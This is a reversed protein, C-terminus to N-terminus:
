WQDHLCLTQVLRVTETGGVVCFPLLRDFRGSGDCARGNRDLIQAFNNHRGPRLMDARIYNPFRNPLPNGTSASSHRFIQIKRKIIRLVRKGRIQEGSEWWWYIVIEGTQERM